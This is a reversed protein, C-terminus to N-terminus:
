PTRLPEVTEPENEGLERIRSLFLASVRPLADRDPKNERFESLDIPPGFRVRTQQRRLFSWVIPESFCSGSIYAPIVTAKSHLALMAAGDKAELTEGPRAIRGEIFVGLPKGARLHRLAERMGKTDQGTRKVPICGIMSMLRGGLPMRYYEEAVFFGIPRSPVSAIILLPDIASRHNAVVIVPGVAPVTCEGERRLGLWRRCYLENLKWWFTVARGYRRIGM